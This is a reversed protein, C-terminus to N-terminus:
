GRTSSRRGPRPKGSKVVILHRSITAVARDGAIKGIITVPCPLAASVEGLADCIGSEQKGHLLTSLQGALSAPAKDGHACVTDSDATCVPDSSGRIIGAPLALVKLAGQAAAYQHQRAAKTHADWAHVIGSAAAVLAIFAAGAIWAQSIRPRTARYGPLRSDIGRAIRLFLRRLPWPSGLRAAKLGRRSAAISGLVLELLGVGILIVGLLQRSRIAACATSPNTGTLSSMGDVLDCVMRQTQVGHFQWWGVGLTLVGVAAIPLTWGPRVRAPAAKGSLPPRAELM